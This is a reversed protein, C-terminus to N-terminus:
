VVVLRVRGKARRLKLVRRGGHTRMRARFGHERKRATTKPQYTRKVLASVKDKIRDSNGKRNYIKQHNTDVSNTPASYLRLAGSHHAGANGKVITSYLVLIRNLSTM